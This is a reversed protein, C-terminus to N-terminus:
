FLLRASSVKLEKFLRMTKEDFDPVGAHCLSALWESNTM